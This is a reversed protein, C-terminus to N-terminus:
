SSSAPICLRWGFSEKPVVRCLGFWPSLKELAGGAAEAEVAANHTQKRRQRIRGEERGGFHVDQSCAM